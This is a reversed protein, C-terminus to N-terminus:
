QADSWVIERAEGSLYAETLDKTCNDGLVQGGDQCHFQSGCLSTSSPAGSKVEILRWTALRRDTEVVEGSHKNLLRVVAERKKQASTEATINFKEYTHDPLAELLTNYRQQLPPSSKLNTLRLSKRHM